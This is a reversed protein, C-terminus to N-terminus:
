AARRDRARATRGRPATVGSRGESGDRAPIGATRDAANVYRACEQARVSCRPFNWHNSNAGCFSGIMPVKEPGKTSATRLTPTSNGRPGASTGSTTQFSKSASQGIGPRRGQPLSQKQTRPRFFARGQEYYRGLTESGIIYQQTSLQGPARMGGQPSKSVPTRLTGV